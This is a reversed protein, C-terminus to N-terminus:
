EDDSDYRKRGCCFISKKRRNRNKAIERKPSKPKAETKSKSKVPSEGIPQNASIDVNVMNVSVARNNDLHPVGAGVESDASSSLAVMVSKSEEKEKM